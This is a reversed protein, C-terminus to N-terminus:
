SISTAETCCTSEDEIKLKETMQAFFLGTDDGKRLKIIEQKLIVRIENMTPRKKMDKSWAKHLLNKAAEPWCCCLRLLQSDVIKSGPSILPQNLSLIEFLVMGFSYVDASQNYLQNNAIEPSMYRYTGVGGSMKFLLGPTVKEETSPIERCLGFDFLKLRENCDFGINTPKLDRYILSKSHLYDLASAIDFAAKLRIAMLTDSKFGKKDKVKGWFSSNRKKEKRWKQVRDQLTESLRDVILFFSDHRGHMYANVGEASIGHIKLINPHDLSALFAAEVCLDIAGNAFKKPKEVLKRRLHKLAFRNIWIKGQSNNSSIFHDRASSDIGIYTNDDGGRPNIGTIGYVSSFGGTGLLEGVSIEELFFKTPTRIRSISIENTEKIARNVIQETLSPELPDYDHYDNGLSYLLDGNRLMVDEISKVTTMGRTHYEGDGCSCKKAKSNM